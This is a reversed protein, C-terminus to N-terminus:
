LDGLADHQAFQADLELVGFLGFKSVCRAKGLSYMTYSQDRPASYFTPDVIPRPTATLSRPPRDSRNSNSKGGYHKKLRM